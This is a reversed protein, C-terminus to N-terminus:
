RLGARELARRAQRAALEDVPTSPTRVRSVRRQARRRPPLETAPQTAIRELADAIRALLVRVEDDAM